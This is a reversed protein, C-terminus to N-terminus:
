CRYNELRQVVESQPLVFKGFDTKSYKYDLIQKGHHQHHQQRRNSDILLKVAHLHQPLHALQHSIQYQPKHRADRQYRREQSFATRVEVVLSHGDYGESQAKTHNQHCFHCSEALSEACKHHTRYQRFGNFTFTNFFQHRGDFVEKTRYKEHRHTHHNRGRSQSFIPQRNQHNCQRHNNSLYYKCRQADRQRTLRHFDSHLRRKRESLHAFKGEDYRLKALRNANGFFEKVGDHHSNRHNGREERRVCDFEGFGGVLSQFLHQRLFKKRQESPELLAFGGDSLLANHTLQEFFNTNRHRDITNYTTKHYHKILLEKRAPNHARHRRNQGFLKFPNRPKHRQASQQKQQRREEVFDNRAVFVSGFRLFETLVTSVFTGPQNSEINRAINQHHHENDTADSTIEIQRKSQQKHRRHSHHRQYHKRALNM